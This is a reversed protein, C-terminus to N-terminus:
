PCAERLKEPEGEVMSYLHEPEPFAVRYATEHTRLLTALNDM